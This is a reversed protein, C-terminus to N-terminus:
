GCFGGPEPEAGPQSRSRGSRKGWHAPAVLSCRRNTDPWDRRVRFFLRAAARWSLLGAYALLMFLVFLARSVDRFSFYLVGALSISAVLFAATLASFEDVIRLYKRADYISFTSLIAVCILPLALVFIWPVAVPAPMTEIFALRNLAPRVIVALWLSGAVILLDVVMSFLAFNTSFRRLM